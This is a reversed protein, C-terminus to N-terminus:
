VNQLLGHGCTSMACLLIGTIIMIILFILCFTVHLLNSYFFYLLTFYLICQRIIEVIM